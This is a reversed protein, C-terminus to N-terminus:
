ENPIRHLESGSNILEIILNTLGDISQLLEITLYEDPIAISFENELDVIFSIFMISDISYNRLDLDGEDSEIVIGNNELLKLIAKRIKDFEM